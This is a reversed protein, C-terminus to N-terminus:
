ETERRLDSAGFMGCVTADDLPAGRLYCEWVEDAPLAYMAVDNVLPADFSELVDFEVRGLLEPNEGRGPVLFVNAVQKIDHGRMFGEYAVQYLHQKTISEVGPAGEVSAGFSPIYYKADFIGFAWGGALKRVVIADPILTSECGCEKEGDDMAKFWRPRPMLELLTKGKQSKWPEKLDIGFSGIPKKAVDGLAVCCAKEWAHYFSTTGLCLVEESRVSVNEDDFYRTLLDLVQQKWTVFQTGKERELKYLITGTDGLDEREDISLEINDFGLLESLGSDKMFASCETLAFRHLRTIFDASQRATENTEYDLYVPVGDSMYADHKAMTREWNIDGGGCRRFVREENEYLGYEGYTELLVLTLVLRDNAKLGDESAAAIEAYSGASKRLVRIIRRLRAEGEQGKAVDAECLYKPYVIIAFDEFVVLGVYVFQYMGCKGKHSAGEYERPRSDTRLKLVGRTTLTEICLKAEAIDLKFKEALSEPTCAWLEQVFVQRM